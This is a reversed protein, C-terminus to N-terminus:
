YNVICMSMLTNNYKYKFNYENMENFEPLLVNM